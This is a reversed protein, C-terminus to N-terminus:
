LYRCLGHLDLVGQISKNYSKEAYIPPRYHFRVVAQVTHSNWEVM